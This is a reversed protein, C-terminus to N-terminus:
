VSQIHRHTHTSSTRIENSQMKFQIGYVIDQVTHTHTHALNSGFLKRQTKILWLFSLLLSASPNFVASLILGSYIGNDQAYKQMQKRLAGLPFCFDYIFPGSVCWLSDTCLDCAVQLQQGVFPGFRFSKSWGDALAFMEM